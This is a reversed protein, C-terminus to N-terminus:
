DTAAARGLRDLVAEWEPTKPPREVVVLACGEADVDHLTAYLRAAFGTPDDPMRVAVDAPFALGGLSLVAISGGADRTAAAATRAEALAAADGADAVVLRARPAYHRAAQGPALQAVTDGDHRVARSVPRGLVTALQEATIAGPRLLRPATDTLDVVTSEIGVSSPGGDVILDVRDGLTRAVHAASTPSLETYRNASPAAVPIGAARLLALAVPHSPIRVGVAPLGATAVDPVVPQKPLVLTLPGPWFAEALRQAEPPWAAAVAQAAAVDPVHVIVPNTAPRGKAAYIREVAAPNLAHGGLGYVTETPFAVLGGARLVAAARALMADDPHAPDMALVDAM